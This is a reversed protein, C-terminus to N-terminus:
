LVFPTLGEDAGSDHLGLEVRNLVTGSVHQIMELGHVGLELRFVVSKKLNLPDALVSKTKAGGLLEFVTELGVVGDVRGPITLFNVFLCGIVQYM